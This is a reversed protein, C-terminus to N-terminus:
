AATDRALWRAWNWGTTQGDAILDLTENKAMGAAQTVSGGPDVVPYM